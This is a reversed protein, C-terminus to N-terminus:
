SAQRIDAGTWDSPPPASQFRVCRELMMAAPPDDPTMGLVDRFYAAAKKFGRDYYEAMGLNHAGWM